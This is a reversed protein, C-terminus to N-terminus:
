VIMQDLRSHADQWEQCLRNATLYYYNNVTLFEDHGGANGQAGMELGEDAVL